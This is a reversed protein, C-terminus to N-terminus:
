SAAAIARALSVSGIRARQSVSIHSNWAGVGQVGAPVFHTGIAAMKSQRAQAAGARAGTPIAAAGARNAVPQERIVPNRATRAVGGGHAGRADRDDGGHVPHSGTPRPRSPPAVNM